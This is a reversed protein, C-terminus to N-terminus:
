APLELVNNIITDQSARTFHKDVVKLSLGLFIKNFNNVIKEVAAHNELKMSFQIFSSYFPNAFRKEIGELSRLM